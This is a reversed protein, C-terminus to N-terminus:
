MSRVAGRHRVAAARATQYLQLAEIALTRNAAWMRL